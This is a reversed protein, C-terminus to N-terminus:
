SFIPFNEALLNSHFTELTIYEYGLSVRVAQKRPRLMTTILLLTILCYNVVLTAKIAVNPKKKKIVNFLGMGM